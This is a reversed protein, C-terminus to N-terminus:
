RNLSTVLWVMQSFPIFMVPAQTNTPVGPPKTNAAIQLWIGISDADVVVGQLTTNDSLKVSVHKNTFKNSM